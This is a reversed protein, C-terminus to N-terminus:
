WGGLGAYPDGGQKPPPGPPPPPPQWGPPLQTGQGSMGSISGRQGMQAAFPQNSRNQMPPPNFYQQTAPPSIPPYATPNYGGYQQQQQQQQQEYSYSNPQESERERERRPAPAPAPAPSRADRASSQDSLPPSPLALNISSFLGSHKNASVEWIWTRFSVLLILLLPPKGGVHNRALKM